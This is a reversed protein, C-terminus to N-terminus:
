PSPGFIERFFMQMHKWSREAARPNYAAGSGPDSGAAPNTFSHVAQGYLIMQWDAGAERMSSQFARIQKRKVFPDRAGHLILLKSQLANRQDPEPSTLGGHFTVTGKLDAGSYALELAATGGFCFGIAAIREPDVRKRARLQRLGAAAREAMLPTSKLHGAMQAAQEPDKTSRGKGYMDAALAVYGLAALQRTRKLIYDNLGWWEHLVLVGPRKGSIASDHAAYGRLETGQHTYTVEELVVEARAGGALLLVLILVPLYKV